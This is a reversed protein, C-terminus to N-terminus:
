SREEDDDLKKVFKKAAELTPFLQFEYSTDVLEIVRYGIVELNNYDALVPVIMYRNDSSVQIKLSLVPSVLTTWFKNIM